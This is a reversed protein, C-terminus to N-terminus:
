KVSVLVLDTMLCDHTERPLEDLLQFDYGVGVRVAEVKARALLRDYWGGGYGLRVGTNSFALGPVLWVDVKSPDIYQADLSPEHIHMPGVPLQAAYPTELEALEYDRGNWRPAAFRVGTGWLSVIFPELDLEQPSALYVAIWQARSLRADSLLRQALRRSALAREEPTLAKRRERMEHRAIEKAQM